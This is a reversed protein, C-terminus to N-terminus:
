DKAPPLEKLAQMAQPQSPLIELAKEYHKRAKGILGHSRYFDGLAVFHAPSFPELEAARLLAAEARKQWRYDPNRSLAQGLLSFVGAIKESHSSAFECYRICNFFDGMKWYDRAKTLFQEALRTREEEVSQKETKTLEKRMALQELNLNMVRETGAGPAPRAAGLKESRVALFAELVRAEIIQLEERLEAQVKKLFRAPAYREKRELYAAKVQEPTTDEGVGLIDFPGGTGVTRYFDRIEAREREERRRKEEEGRVLDYCSLLGSGIPPVFQALGLILVRKGSVDM